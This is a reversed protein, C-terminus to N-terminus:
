KRKKEESWWGVRSATIEQQRYQRRQWRTWGEWVLVLLGLGILVVYYGLSRLWDTM